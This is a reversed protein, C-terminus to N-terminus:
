PKNLGYTALDSSPDKVFEKAKASTIRSITSSVKSSDADADVPTKIKWDSGERSLAVQGQENSVSLSNIEYQSAGFVSKDRLDDVSKDADTLIAVPLLDVGVADDVRAYVSLGSFAKNGLQVRHQEGSKLKIDVTVPPQELGYSKVDDASANLTRSVRSSAISGALSNMASEDAPANIPQTIAWKGSQNDITVSQGARAITMSTIDSSSFNFVPKSTDTTTTPSTSGKRIELFYVAVGLVAAIVLLILTNRKM